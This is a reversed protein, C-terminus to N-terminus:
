ECVRATRAQLPSELHQGLPDLRPKVVRTDSRATWVVWSNLRDSVELNFPPIFM